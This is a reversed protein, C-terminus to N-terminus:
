WGNGSSIFRTIVVRSAEIWKAGVSCARVASRASPM